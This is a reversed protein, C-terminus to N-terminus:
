FVKSLLYIILVVLLVIGIGVLKWLGQRYPTYLTHRLEKQEQDRKSNNKLHEEELVKEINTEM